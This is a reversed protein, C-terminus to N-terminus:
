NINLKISKIKDNRTEKRKSDNAQKEINQLKIKKIKSNIHTIAMSNLDLISCIRSEWIYSILYILWKLLIVKLMINNLITLIVRSFKFDGEVVM